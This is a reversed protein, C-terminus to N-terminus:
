RTNTFNMKTPVIRNEKVLPVSQMVSPDRSDSRRSRASRTNEWRPGCHVGANSKGVAKVLIGLSIVM